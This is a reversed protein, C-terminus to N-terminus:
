ILQWTPEIIYGLETNEALGNSCLVVCHGIQKAIETRRKRSTKTSLQWVITERSSKVCTWFGQKVLQKLRDLTCECTWLSLKCTYTCTYASLQLPKSDLEMALNSCPSNNATRQSHELLTQFPKYTLFPHVAQVTSLHMRGQMHM